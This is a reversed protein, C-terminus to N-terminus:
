RGTIRNRLAPNNKHIIKVVLEELEDHKVSGAQDVHLHIERSGRDGDSGQGGSRAAAADERQEDKTRVRIDEGPTVKFRAIQSDTGGIGDVTWNAGNAAAPLPAGPVYDSPLAKVGPGYSTTSGLSGALSALSAVLNHSALRALDALISQVMDHFSFKGTTALRTLADELNSFVIAGAENLEDLASKSHGLEIRWRKTAEANSLIMQRNAAWRVINNDLESTMARSTALMNDLEQHPAAAAAGMGSATKSWDAVSFDPAKPLGPVNRDVGMYLVGHWERLANAARGTATATKEFDATLAKLQTNYQEQTIKGADLLALLGVTAQHYKTRKGNVEELQENEAKLLDLAQTALETTANMATVASAHQGASQALEKSHELAKFAAMLAHTTDVTKLMLGAMSNNLKLIERNVNDFNFGAVDAMLGNMSKDFDDTSASLSSWLGGIVKGIGTFPILLSDMLFGGKDKLWGVADGVGGLVKGVMGAIGGLVSLAGGLSEVAHAATVFEGVVQTMDNKFVVMQESLTPVTKGFGADIEGKARKFWEILLEASIKGHKGMEAFEAATHGSAHQLAAMLPSADKMMVRFERGSLTGVQFAHSLEMMSMQAEFATAGGMRLGKSLTETLELIDSQSTGLERTALKLRMFVTATSEWDSRTADAVGRTKGMLENLNADDTAVVRLRNSLNGYEETLQAVEHVVVGVGAVGALQGAAGSLMGGQDSPGNARTQASQRQHSAAFQDNYQQTSIAGKRMLADLAQVDAIHERMPGHIKELMDAERQFQANLASFAQAAGATMQDLQTRIGQGMSAFARAAGGALQDLQGHLSRASTQAQSMSTSAAQSGRTISEGIREGKGELGAMATGLQKASATAATTDAKVTIVYSM